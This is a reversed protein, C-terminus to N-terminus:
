NEMTSTLTVSFDDMMLEKSSENIIYIKFIVTDTHPSLDWSSHHFAHNWGSRDIIQDRLNAADWKIVGEQKTEVSIVFPIDAKEGKV